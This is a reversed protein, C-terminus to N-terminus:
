HECIKAAMPLVGETVGFHKTEKWTGSLDYGSVLFRASKVEGTVAADTTWTSASDAWSGMVGNTALNRNTSLVDPIGWCKRSGLQPRRHFIGGLSTFILGRDPSSLTAPPV